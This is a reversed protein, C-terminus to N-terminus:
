NLSRHGEDADATTSCQKEARATQVNAYFGKNVESKHLEPQQQGLQDAVVKLSSQQGDLHACIDGLRTIMVEMNIAEVAALRQEIAVMKRSVYFLNLDDSKVNPIRELDRAVYVPLQGALAREDLFAWLDLLDEV